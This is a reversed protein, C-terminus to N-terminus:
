SLTFVSRPRGEVVVQGLLAQRPKFRAPVSADDPVGYTSVREFYDDRATFIAGAVAGVYRGLFDLISNGLQQVSRDGLVAAALGVQGTQLWKDRRRVLTTRRILFGVVGTLLIGLVGSFFMSLLARQQAAEMEILLRARVDEETQGIATIQARVADMEIKGRDSNVIGMAAELSQTRRLNITKRLEALKAEVHQRLLTVRDQQGPNASTLQGIKDLQAPIAQLAASYPDLYAENNTLLFGRQGTEADQLQSFLDNLAVIAVHTQVVRLNGERMAQFNFYAVLGSVTFFLVAAALGFAMGPDLGLTPKSAQPRANRDM